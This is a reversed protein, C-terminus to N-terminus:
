CIGQNPYRRVGTFYTLTLWETTDLKKCDWSSHGDPEETWPIRWALIHSHTAMEEKLPDEWDLSRVQTKRMVPLNKVMQTMLIIIIVRFITYLQIYAIHTRVKKWLISEIIELLRERTKWVRPLIYRCTNNFLTIQVQSCWGTGM